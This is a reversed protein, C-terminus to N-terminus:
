KLFKLKVLLYLNLWKILVKLSFIYQNNYKLRHQILCMPGTQFKNKGANKKNENKWFYWSWSMRLKLKLKTYWMLM